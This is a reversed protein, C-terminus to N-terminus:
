NKLQMINNTHISNKETNMAIEVSFIRLLHSDCMNVMELSCKKM